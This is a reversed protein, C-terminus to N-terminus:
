PGCVANIRTAAVLDAVINKAIFLRLGEDSLDFKHNKYFVQRAEQIDDGRMGHLILEDYRKLVATYLELGTGDAALLDRATAKGFPICHGKIHYINFEVDNQELLLLTRRIKKWMDQNKVPEGAATIWGKNEWNVYWRNNITNFIYESDTILQVNDDKSEVIHELALILASLEGRQNTSCYDVVSLTEFVNTGSIFVGGVSVCDPKGNRKCAGDIAISLM